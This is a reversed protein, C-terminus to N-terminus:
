RDTVFQELAELNLIPTINNVADRDFRYKYFKGRSIYILEPLKNHPLGFRAEAERATTIDIYAVSARGRLSGSLEDWKALTEEGCALKKDKSCFM